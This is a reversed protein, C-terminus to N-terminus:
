DQRAVIEANRERGREDIWNAIDQWVTERQNDRLLMHWGNEYTNFTLPATFKKSVDEIPTRPVIEDKAGYLLLVPMRVRPVAKNAEEMLGVLGYVADIRTAKIVLPDRSFARLMEINDSPWRELGEGTLTTAPAIHAGVWLPAQLFVNMSSWGWVAPAALILGEVDTMGRAATALTVAGGMSAGMVYVPLGPLRAKVLTVISALDSTLADAGAWRGRAPAGGFGRQDYAIVSVGRKAFWPGPMEFARSYDNFGHVAVIVAKPTEAEWRRLPLPTADAMIARDERLAAEQYPTGLPQVFPACASLLLLLAAGLGTRGNHHYKM